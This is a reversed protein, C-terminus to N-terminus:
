AALTHPEPRHSATPIRPTTNEREIGKQIKRDFRRYKFREWQSAVSQRRERALAELKRATQLDAQLREWSELALTDNQLYDAMDQESQNELTLLEIESITPTVFLPSSTSSVISLRPSPPQNMIPNETTKAPFPVHYVVRQTLQEPATNYSDADSSM